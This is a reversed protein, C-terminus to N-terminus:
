KESVQKSHRAILGSEKVHLGHQSLTRLLDLYSISDENDGSGGARVIDNIMEDIENTKTQLLLCCMFLVYLV